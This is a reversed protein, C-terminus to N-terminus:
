KRLAAALEEYIHIASKVSKEWDGLHLSENESHANTYPDEVGILLAPVGGLEKSFPEVFPISGGCGIAVSKTGYGKELARFAAQFAPGSSDTYWWGAASEAKVTCELGWPTAKKLADILKQQVDKAELNPVLRIGVRAWASECVINRADKRSSAQIANVTLSPQRWNTEWPHRDGGMMQVGPLLGSQRRFTDRDGPLANISAKEGETLPKVKDLIGPIAITGDANTLSALMKSLAMVPDPVPGGWMGSHLSQKLARVEVDVTVLGRLATTISPLGTEFNTTDTLVIADASLMARHKQLFDTLHDSGIEEEGEIVIKVNLPLPDGSKLWADVASTHVVIGAKDDAAGRAFLRGDRETPEFPKSKWAAEDGAPQVDHHAYLLLTPKGPAKLIEGYVYPHAGEIELLQVNDFGRKKLLAATAEASARVHRPDFGAFSVSPIRVLTKLDELYENRKADFHKLATETSM